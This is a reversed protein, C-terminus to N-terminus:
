LFSLWPCVLVADQNFHNDYPCTWPRRLDRSRFVLLTLCNFDRAERCNEPSGHESGAM